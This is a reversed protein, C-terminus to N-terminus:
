KKLKIGYTGTISDKFYETHPPYFTFYTMFGIHIILIICGIIWLKKSRITNEMLFYRSSQGVVGGIIYTTVHVLIHSKGVFVDYAEITFFTVFEFVLIGVALSFLYNNVQNRIFYYEFISIIVMPWFVIKWHEWKSENVPSIIGLYTKGTAKYLEHFLLGLLIVSVISVIKVYRVQKKKNM